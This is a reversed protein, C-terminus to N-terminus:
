NNQQIENYYDWETETIVRDEINPINISTLIDYWYDYLNDKIAIKYDSLIGGFSNTNLRLNNVSGYGNNRPDEKIYFVKIKTSGFFAYNLINAKELVVYEITNNNLFSFQSVNRYGDGLSHELDLINGIITNGSALGGRVSGYSVQTGYWLLNQEDFIMGVGESQNEIIISPNHTFALGTVYYNDTIRISNLKKYGLFPETANKNIIVDTVLENNVYLNEAYYLPNRFVLEEIYFSNKKIDYWHDLSEIHVNKINSNKISGDFETINNPVYLDTYSTCGEFIDLFLKTQESSYNVRKLNICDKFVSADKGGNHYLTVKKSFTVEELSTCGEFAYERVLGVNNFDINVLNKCNKCLNPGVKSINDGFRISVFNRDQFANDEIDTINNPINCETIPKACGLIITGEKNCLFDDVISFNANEEDVIINLSNCGIFVGKKNNPSYISTCEKSITITELSECYDLSEYAFAVINETNINKLNKCGYFTGSYLTSISNNLTISQLNECNKFADAELKIVNDININILSKCNKFAYANITTVSVPLNINILNECGNFAGDKIITVSEPISIEQLSKCNYFGYAPISTLNNPLIVEQLNICNEFAGTAYELNVTNPIEIRTINSNGCIFNFPIETLNSVDINTLDCYSFVGDGVSTCNNFNNISSLKKCSAFACKGIIFNNNPFNIKEICQCGILLGNKIESITDPFTYETLLENNVYLNKCRGIGVYSWIINFYADIDKIYLDNFHWSSVEDDGDFSSRETIINSLTTPINANIVNNFANANLTTVGEPIDIFTLAECDFFCYEPIETINNPLVISNLSSCGRFCSNGLSIVNESLIINTLSKCNEFAYNGFSNLIKDTNINKLRKCNKFTSENITEISNNFNVTHLNICGMFAEANIHTVSSPIDISLLFRNNQFVNNIELIDNTLVLVGEKTKKNYAHYIIKDSFSTNDVSLRKMAKYNITRQEPFDVLQAALRRFYSM